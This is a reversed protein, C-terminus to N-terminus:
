RTGSESSLFHAIGVRSAVDARAGVGGAVTAPNAQTTAGVWSNVPQAITM